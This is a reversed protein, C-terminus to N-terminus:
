KTRTNLENISEILLSLISSYDVDLYQNGHIESVVEPLVEQVEQAILGIHRRDDFYIWNYGSTTM